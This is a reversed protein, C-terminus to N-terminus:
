YEVLVIWGEDCYGFVQFKTLQYPCLIVSGMAGNDSQRSRQM